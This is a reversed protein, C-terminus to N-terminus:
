CLIQATSVHIISSSSATYTRLLSPSLQYIRVLRLLSPLHPIRKEPDHAVWALCAELVVQESRVELDDASLYSEVSKLPLQLWEGM